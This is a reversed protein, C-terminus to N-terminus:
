QTHLAGQNQTTGSLVGAQVDLRRVYRLRSRKIIIQGGKRYAQWNGRIVTCTKQQSIMMENIKSFGVTARREKVNAPSRIVLGLPHTLVTDGEEVRIEKCVEVM